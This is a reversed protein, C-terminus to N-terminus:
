NAGPKSILVQKLKQANIFKQVNQPTDRLHGAWITPVTQWFLPEMGTLMGFNELYSKSM